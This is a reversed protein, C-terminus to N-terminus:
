NASATKLVPAIKVPDEMALFDRSVWFVNKLTEHKRLITMWNLETGDNQQEVQWM